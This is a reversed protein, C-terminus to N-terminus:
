NPPLYLDPFLPILILSHGKAASNSPASLPGFRRRHNPGFIGHM